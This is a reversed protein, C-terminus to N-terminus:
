QPRRPDHSSGTGHRYHESDPAKRLELHHGPHHTRRRHLGHHTREKPHTIPPPYNVTGTAEKLKDRGYNYLTISRDLFNKAEQLRKMQIDYTTLEEIGEYPIATFDENLTQAVDKTFAFRHTDIDNSLKILDSYLSQKTKALTGDNIKNGINITSFNAYADAVAEVREPNLEEQKLKILLRNAEQQLGYLAELKVGINALVEDMEPTHM